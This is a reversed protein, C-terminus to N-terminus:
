LVERNDQFLMICEKFKEFKRDLFLVNSNIDKYIYKFLKKSDYTSFHLYHVSNNVTSIEVRNTNINKHLFVSLSAIFGISGSCFSSGFLEPREKRNFISGDGDFVGRIFDSMFESPIFDPFRVIKSKARSLGFFMIKSVIIHNYIFLRYYEKGSIIDTTINGNYKMADKIKDLISFDKSSICIRYNINRRSGDVNFECYDNSYVCGDTLILGYVYASNRNWEDFFGENIHYKDDKKMGLSNAKVTICAKSRHINDLLYDWDSSAYNKQLFKIEKDTWLKGGAM